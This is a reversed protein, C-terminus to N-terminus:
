KPLSGTASPAAVGGIRRRHRAPRPQTRGGGRPEGPEADAAAGPRRGPRGGRRAQAGDATAPRGPDPASRLLDRPRPRHPLARRQGPDGRRRRSGARAPRRRLGFRPRRGHSDPCGKSSTSTAIWWPRRRGPMSAAPWSRRRWSWPSCPSWTAYRSPLRPRPRGRRSGPFPPGGRRGRGQGQGPDRGAGGGGFPPGGRRHPQGRRPGRGSGQPARGPPDGGGGQGGRGRHAPRQDGAAPGALLRAIQHRGKFWVFGFVITFAVIGAVLEAMDPLVLDIGSSGEEAAAFAFLTSMLTSTM